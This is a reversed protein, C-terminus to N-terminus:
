YVSVMSRRLSNELTWVIQQGPQVTFGESRVTTRGGVLRARLHLRASAAIFSGPFQLTTGRSGTATGLRTVRGDAGEIWVIVDSSNRNEVSLYVFDPLPVPAASDAAADAAAASETGGGGVPIRRACATAALHVVLLLLFTPLAARRRGRHSPSSALRRIPPRDKPLTDRM